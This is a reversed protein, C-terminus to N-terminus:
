MLKAMRVSSIYIESCNKLYLKITDADLDDITANPVAAEDPVFNGCESMMEALESNDFVKRKDAGNKVWIIGKNDHYPKNKGEPITAVVVGGGKVPVNEVGILINPIVNESAINTLLNTTEQLEQYSLANIIGTRDNIGIVLQGGRSNCFAVIECSIDYRDNAREKFQLKGDEALDRMQLLEQETM